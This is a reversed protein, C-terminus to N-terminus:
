WHPQWHLYGSWKQSSQESQDGWSGESDCDAAKRAISKASAPCSALV